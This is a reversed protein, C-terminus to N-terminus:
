SSRAPLTTPREGESVSLTQSQDIVAERDYRLSRASPRAVTSRVGSPLLVWQWALGDPYVAGGRVVRRKAETSHGVIM